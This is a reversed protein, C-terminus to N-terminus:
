KTGGFLPRPLYLICLLVVPIYVLYAINWAAEPMDVAAAWLNLAAHFLIATLASGGSRNYLLSMIISWAIVIMMFRLFSEGNQLTNPILFLPFHWIAHIAGLLLSAGLSGFHVQLRPLAFGRWGIEEPLAVLLLQAILMPVFPQPLRLWGASLTGGVTVYLRAGLVYIVGISGLRLSICCRHFAGGSCVQGYAVFVPM